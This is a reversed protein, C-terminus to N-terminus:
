KKVPRCNNNWEKIIKIITKSMSYQAIGRNKKETNQQDLIIKMTESDIGKLSIEAM